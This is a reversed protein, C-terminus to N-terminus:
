NEMELTCDSGQHLPFLVFEFEYQSLFSGTVCRMGSGLVPHRPAGRCVSCSVVLNARHWGHTGLFDATLLVLPRCRCLNVGWGCSVLVLPTEHIIEQHAPFINLFVPSTADWRRQSSPPDDGLSWIMVMERVHDSLSEVTALFYSSIGLGAVCDWWCLAGVWSMPQVPESKGTASHYPKRVNSVSTVFSLKLDKKPLPNKNQKSKWTSEGYDWEWVWAWLCWSM